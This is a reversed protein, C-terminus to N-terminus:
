LFLDLADVQVLKQAQKVHGHLIQESSHTNGRLTFDLDRYHWYHMKFHITALQGLEQTCGKCVKGRFPFTKLKWFNKKHTVGARESCWFNQVLFFKFYGFPHGVSVLVLSMVIVIALMLAEYDRDSAPWLMNRTAANRNNPQKFFIM